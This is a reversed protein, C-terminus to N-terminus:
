LPLSLGSFTPLLSPYREYLKKITDQYPKIENAILADLVSRSPSTALAKSMTMGYESNMEHACDIALQIARDKVVIAAQAEALQKEKEERENLFRIACEYNSESGEKWTVRRMQEGDNPCTQVEEIRPASVAGDFARLTRNHQEFGCKDCHWDGPMYVQQRLKAAEERAEALQRQSESLAANILSAVREATARDTFCYVLKGDSNVLQETAGHGPQHIVKWDELATSTDPTPTM